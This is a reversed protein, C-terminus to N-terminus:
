NLRLECLMCNVMEFHVIWHSTTYESHQSVVVERQNGVKKGDCLAAGADMICDVERGWGSAAALSSGTKTSEGIRSTEEWLLLIVHSRSHSAEKVPYFTKLPWELELM